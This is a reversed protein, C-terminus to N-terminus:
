KQAEPFKFWDWVLKQNSIELRQLWKLEINFIIAEGAGFKILNFDKELIKRKEKNDGLAYKGVLMVQIVAVEGEIAHVIAEAGYLSSLSPNLIKVANGKRIEKKPVERSFIGM